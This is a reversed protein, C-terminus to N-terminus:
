LESGKTLCQLELRVLPLGKQEDSLSYPLLCLREDREDLDISLYGQPNEVRAFIRSAQGVTGVVRGQEDKVAAGLPLVGGKEGIARVLIGYGTLTEFHLKVAAGAYPAVEQKSVLLDTRQDMDAANISVDNYRFPSLNPVVAYGDRNIRSGQGNSITAGEAGKAEVLAFTEGLYPGLTLGESHVVVSGRMTMGMQYYGQGQSFSGSLAGVPLRTQAGVGAYTSGQQTDHGVDLGYSNRNDDGWTGGLSSQLLAGRDGQFSVSSTLHPSTPMHELPMSLSFMTLNDPLGNQTRAHTYSVGVGMQGFTNAYGLQLQSDRSSSGYYDSSSGSLTIQGYRGLPQALSLVVQNRQHQFVRDDLDFADGSIQPRRALAQTLDMFGETSYRYGALAFTTNTVDVHKSYNMEFRWGDSSHGQEAHMAHMSQTLNAGFAGWSNVFVGGGLVALYNKAVRGGMNVTMGNNLGLQYTLEGFLDDTATDGGDRLQGVTVSYRGMGPRISEPVASYPVTFRRSQGNAEIVEVDLDGQYSTAALDDIVFPGPPVTTQYIIQQKQRVIVRANSTAAGRVQPAYFRLYDPLMREDTQLNIGRYGVSGFLNGPLFAEGLTLESQSAPLSRQIYTQLPNWHHTSVGNRDTFSLSSQHRFRWLGINVGSNMGVFGYRTPGIRSNRNEQVSANYSSFAMAEGADWRSPPVYAKPTHRMFAQPVSVDLRLKNMNFEHFAGDLWQSIPTCRALEGESFDELVVGAQELMALSLCPSPPGSESSEFQLDERGVFTQNIYVDVRYKGAPFWDGANLKSVDVSSGMLLDGDFQYTQALAPAAVGVYATIACVVPTLSFATAFRM